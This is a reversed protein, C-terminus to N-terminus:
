FHKHMPNWKLHYFKAARSPGGGDGGGKALGTFTSYCQTYQLLIFTYVAVSYRVPLQLVTSYISYTYCQLTYVTPTVSYHTYQLHLVIVYISYTYCQLTYVTLTVSYHIYQLHLM